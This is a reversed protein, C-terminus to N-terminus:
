VVKEAFSLVNKKRGGGDPKIIMENTNKIVPWCVYTPSFNNLLFYPKIRIIFGSKRM